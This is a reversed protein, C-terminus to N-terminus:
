VQTYFAYIYSSVCGVWFFFSAIMMWWMVFLGSLVTWVWTTIIRTSWKSYSSVLSDSAHPASTPVITATEGTRVLANNALDEATSFVTVNMMMGLSCHSTFLYTVDCVFLLVNGTANADNSTFIYTAPSTDGILIAGTNNCTGSPHLHVNHYGDFHWLFVDGVVATRSPLPGGNSPLKWNDITVEVSEGSLLLLLLLAIALSYSRM